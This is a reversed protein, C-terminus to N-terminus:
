RGSRRAPTRRRTSWSTTSAATSSTSCGPPPAPSRSCRRPRPRDPGRLRPAARRRATTTPTPCAGALPHAGRGPRLRRQSAPRRPVELPEDAPRAGADPRNRRRGGRPGATQAFAAERRHLAAGAGASAGAAPRPRRSRPSACRRGPRPGGRPPASPRLPASRARRRAAAGRAALTAPQPEPPRRHGWRPAGPDFAAAFAALHLGVGPSRTPTTAPSSAPSRPSARRTPPPSSTSSWARLARAQRDEPRRVAARPRGGAPFAPAAGRSPTSPRSRLGGPTELARAFLTRAPRAPRAPAGGPSASRPAGRLAADDPMAWGGWRGPVPPEADGRGRGQHLDPLPHAAARHRRAAAAGGPRDPAPRAPGPTPRSGARRRPTAARVQAAVAADRVLGGGPTATPGNARARCTTTTAGLLRQPRLRAVYRQGSGPLPPDARSASGPLPSRTPDTDLAPDRPRASKCSSTPALRRRGEFGGAARDGSRPPAAPPLRPGRRREPELRVQLRLHAYGGGLRDIRDARATLRLAPRARSTAAAAVERAAPHAAPAADAEGRPVLPRRPCAPPGSPTSRRGPRARDLAAAISAFFVGGADDPPRGRHRHRLRRPRRPDGAAPWRMPKRGPPDLRRLGLVNRAYDAYPDRVLKQAPDGLARRPPSRGPRPAPPPRAPRHRRSPRPPRRRRALRVGRARAAALAAAGEPGLGPLLNELRLLWRSAVTPAEADRIARSVVM